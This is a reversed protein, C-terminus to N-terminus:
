QWRVIIAATLLAIFQGVLVDGPYHAGLVVRSVGVILAVVLLLPAFSPFAAAFVAAVAMSACAHGSPFSFRDPGRVLAHFSMGISPRERGAVRKVVQVVVHSAGLVMFARFTLAISVAPLLLGALCVGISGRAGGIHTFVTWVGRSRHVERSDLAVRSFLARDRADLRGLLSHVM